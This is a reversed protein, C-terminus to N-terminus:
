RELRTLDECYVGEGCEFYAQNASFHITRRSLLKEQMVWARTNLLAGEVQTDFDAMNTCVYVLRGSNDQVYDYKSSVRNWLKWRPHERYKETIHRKLFGANSDIASTAAVTCYASTYVDQISASELTWDKDDDQLICLSDIWLYRIGLERTVKVADQFTWPLETIKFGQEVRGVINKNTTCYRQKEEDTPKGWCHSLAIYSGVRIEKGLVLKLDDQNNCSDDLKGIDILRTPLPKKSEEDHEYNDHQNCHHFKDCWQLQERLLAFRLPSEAAPLVPFGIQTRSDSGESSGSSPCKALQTECSTQSSDFIGVQIRVCGSFAIDM